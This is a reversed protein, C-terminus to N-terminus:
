SGSLELMEQLESASVTILLKLERLEDCCCSRRFKRRLKYFETSENLADAGPCPGATSRFQKSSRCAEEAESSV